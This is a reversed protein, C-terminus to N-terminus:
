DAIEIGANLWSIVDSPLVNDIKTKSAKKGLRVIVMNKDPIVFVYQGKYGRMSYVIQGNHRHIWWNWGYYGVAEDHVDKLHSVPTLAEALYDGSILQKENWAGHNLILQGFRAFDRANSNFCCFAKEMGNVEDLSWLADQKAGMPQWLKKSTFASISMGTAKELIMALLQTNCNKNEFSRGPEKEADQNLVLESLDKGYYAKATVSFPNAYSDEWSLGSSMELLHRITIKSKDGDSFRPIFESIPQDVSKISGQDIAIGVLLSVISKAMSFSNSRSDASYGDWYKEFIIRKNQIVLFAVTKFEEFVAQYKMPVDREHFGPLEEWPDYTSAIVTRNDFIKQDDINAFQYVLTNRLYEPCILYLGGLIIVIVILVKTVKFNKM